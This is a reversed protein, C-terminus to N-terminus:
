SADPLVVRNRGAQKAAYVAQDARRLVDDFVKDQPAIVGVGISATITLPASGASFPAAEIAHRIREAATHAGAADVDEFLAVFEEGGQRGAMHPGRCTHELVGAVHKLALDGVEHGFRDNISKFHDLDIVAVAFGRGTRRATNFRAQGTATITRRNPLGTLYDTAAAHEWQARIREICLALFATTGVIPLLLLGLPSIVTLWHNGDMSTAAIGPHLVYYVGRFLLFGGAALFITMLITRSTLTYERRHRHLTWVAAFTPLTLGVTAAAVRAEFNPTVTTYWYIVALVLIPPAFLWLTDRQGYFRRMARWYLTFGMMIMLNSLLLVLATPLWRHFVQLVGALAVLLTSIRWDSASPQTDPSLRRHMLGLVGGVLLAIVAGYAAATRPDLPIM